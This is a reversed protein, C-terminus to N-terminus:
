SLKLQNPYTKARVELYGLSTWVLECLVRLWGFSYSGLSVRVPEAATSVLLFPHLIHNADSNLIPRRFYSLFGEFLILRRGTWNQLSGPHASFAAFACSGFM